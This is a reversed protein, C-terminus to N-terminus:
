PNRAPLRSPPFRLLLPHIARRFCPARARTEDRWFSLIAAEKGVRRGWKGSPDFRSGADIEKGGIRGQRNEDHLTLKRAPREKIESLEFAELNIAPRAFLDSISNM